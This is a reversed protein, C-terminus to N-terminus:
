YNFSVGELLASAKALDMPAGPAACFFGYFTNYYGRVTHRRAYPRGPKAFMFCTGERVRNDSEFFWIITQNALVEPARWQGALHRFTARVRSRQAVVGPNANVATPCGNTLGGVMNAVNFRPASGRLRNVAYWEYVCYGRHNRVDVFENRKYCTGSYDSPLAIGPSGCETNTWQPGQALAPGSMLWSAFVACCIATRM